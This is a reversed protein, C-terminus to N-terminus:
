KTRRTIVLPQRLLVAVAAVREEIQVATQHEFVGTRARVLRRLHVLPAGIAAAILFPYQDLLLNFSM